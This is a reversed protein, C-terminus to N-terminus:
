TVMLDRQNKLIMMEWSLVRNQQCREKIYWIWGGSIKKLTNKIKNHIYQTQQFKIRDPYIVFDVNKENQDQAVLYLPSYIFRLQNNESAWSIRLATLGKVNNLKQKLQISKIYLDDLMMENLGESRVVPTHQQKNIKFRKIFEKAEEYIFTSNGKFIHGSLDQKYYNDCSLKKYVKELVKQDLVFTELDPYPNGLTTNNGM